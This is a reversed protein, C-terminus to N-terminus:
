ALDPFVGDVMFEEQRFMIPFTRPASFRVIGQQPDIECIYNIMNEPLTSTIANHDDVAVSVRGNSCRASFYRILKAAKERSYKGVDQTVGYSSPHQLKCLLLGTRNGNGSLYV